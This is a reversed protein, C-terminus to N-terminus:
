GTRFGSPTLLWFRSCARYTERLCLTFSRQDRRFMVSLPYGWRYTTGHQRALDLVPRLMARRQLIGRFVDPLIKVVAGDFDIDGAEWAKRTTSEKHSYHHRRCIMDWPRNPDPSRPGLARHIRDFKLRPPFPDGPLRRFIAEWLRNRM